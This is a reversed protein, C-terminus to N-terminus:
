GPAAAGSRSAALSSEAPRGTRRAEHTALRFDSAAARRASRRAGRRGRALAVVDERHQEVRAVLVARRHGVCSSRSSSIVSSTAPWSVVAEESAQANSRSAACGARARRPQGVLDVGPVVVLVQGRRDLLREAAPGHQGVRGRPEDLLRDLDAAPAIRGADAQHRVGVQEVVVRRDVRIGVGEAGLAEEVCAARCRCRSGTRRRAGASGPRSSRSPRSSSRAGRPAAGRALQPGGVSPASSARRRLMVILGAVTGARDEPAARRAARGPPTFGGPVQEGRGASARARGHRSGIRTVRRRAPRSTRRSARARPQSALADPDTTTNM